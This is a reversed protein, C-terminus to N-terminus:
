YRYAYVFDGLWVKIGGGNYYRNYERLSFVLSLFRFINKGSLFKLRKEEFKIFRHIDKRLLEDKVFILIYKHGEVSQELGNIRKQLRRVPNSSFSANSDHCRYSMLPRNLVAMGKELSALIAIQWDHGLLDKLEMTKVKSILERKVCFSCGRVFSHGILSEASIYEITNDSCNSFHPVTLGEDKIGRADILRYRCSLVKIDPNGKMTDVMVSIKEKDWVDDQDCFFIYDGKTEELARYFNLCYGVNDSHELVRWSGFGREAIFERCLRVTEDTSCDDSIIVEDPELTQSAISELQELLYKAGNYTAIVVSIM